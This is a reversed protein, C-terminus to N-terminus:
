LLIPKKGNTMKAGCQPCFPVKITEQYSCESCTVAVRQREEIWHAEQKKVLENLRENDKNLRINESFLRANETGIGNVEARHEKLLKIIFDVIGSMAEETLKIFGNEDKDAMMLLWIFDKAEDNVNM